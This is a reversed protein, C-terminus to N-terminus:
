IINYFLKKSSPYVASLFNGWSPGIKYLQKLLLFYQQAFKKALCFIPLAGTVVIHVEHDKPQYGTSLLNKCHNCAKHFQVGNRQGMM